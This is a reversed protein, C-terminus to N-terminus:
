SIALAQIRGVVMVENKLEKGALSLTNQHKM